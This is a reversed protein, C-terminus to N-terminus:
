RRVKRSSSREPPPRLEWTIALDFRPLGCAVRLLQLAESWGPQNRWVPPIWTEGNVHSRLWDRFQLQAAWGASIDRSWLAKMHSIRARAFETLPAGADADPLPRDPLPGRSRGYKM